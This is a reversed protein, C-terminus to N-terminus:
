NLKVLKRNSVNKGNISLVGFYLGAPCVKGDNSIGNWSYNGDRGSQAQLATSFVRAGKVNYINLEATDTSKLRYSFNAETRFPNPAISIIQGANPLVVEDENATSTVTATIPITLTPYAANDTTIIMNASVTGAQSPLFMIEFGMDEMFPILYADRNRPFLVFDMSDFSIDINMDQTWWNNITFSQMAVDELSITDFDISQLSVPYANELAQINYKCGQLIEKTSNNQLFFVWEFHQANWAANANFTLNITQTANTSFDIDTGTYSPAMLRQVFELHTQGQWNQQIGSETLVGHLKVNTNNDPELRTVTVAVSYVLGNQSGTASITYNSAVALRSNVKTRYGSYMSQTNSGGVTPNLGDFFATPYGTIAYYSNRANSADNTYPDGNHNEIIAARHHNLVLDDAGMAAGPCYPCWTGTGIEVVVMDRPVASLISLLSILLLFTLLRKM